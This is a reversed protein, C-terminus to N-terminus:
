DGQQEKLLVEPAFATIFAGWHRGGVHIPFSLDVLIEGTDRVYTQVLFPETHSARRKETTTADYIRMHRSERLDRERDGTPPKSVEAHHVPVYGNEDTCVAYAVSPIEAKAHDVAGQLEKRLPGLYSTEYKPPDTNPIPVYKRDFVNVGRDALSQLIESMRNRQRRAQSFVEEVLGRGVRFRSVTQQMQQAVDSLRHTSRKSEEMQGGVAASLDRILGVKEHFHRNTASLQEIATAIRQLQDNTGDFDAVMREFEGATTSVVRHTRGASNVITESERVTERVLATMENVRGSIGETAKRVREALKRVEDAVVAFGRGHEGARASEIAANLALLNTQDSIDQILDVIHRIEDFHEALKGTTGGFTELMKQIDVISQATGQLGTLSQRAAELNKATSQSISHSNDSINEIAHTAEESARELSESFEGQQVAAATTDHIRTRVRASEVASQVAVARMTEISGRLRDFFANYSESLTRIEDFTVVPLSRSLDSEAGAGKQFIDTIMAIPRLILFRLFFVIFASALLGAGLLASGLLLARDLIRLVTQALAPDVSALATSVDGKAFWLLGVGGVQFLLLFVVNGVIKRTITNFVRRELREYLVRFIGM